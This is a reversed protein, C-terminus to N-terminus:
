KGHGGCQKPMRSMEDGWRRGAEFRWRWRQAGKRDDLEHCKPATSVNPEIHSAHLGRTAIESSQRGCHWSWFFAKGGTEKAASHTQESPLMDFRTRSSGRSPQSNMYMTEVHVTGGHPVRTSLGYYSISADARRVGNSGVTKLCYESKNVNARGVNDIALMRVHLLTAASHDSLHAFIIYRHYHM